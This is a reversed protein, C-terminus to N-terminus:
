TTTTQTGGTSGWLSHTRSQGPPRPVLSSSMWGSPSMPLSVKRHGLVRYALVRILLERDGPEELRDFLTQLRESYSLLEALRESAQGLSNM